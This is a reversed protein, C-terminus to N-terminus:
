KPTCPGPGTVVPWCIGLYCGYSTGSTVVIYGCYHFPHCPGGGVETVTNSTCKPTINNQRLHGPFRQLHAATRKM